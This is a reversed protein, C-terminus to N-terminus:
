RALFTRETTVQDGHFIPSIKQDVKDHIRLRMIEEFGLQCLQRM